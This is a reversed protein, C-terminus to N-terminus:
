YICNRLYILICTKRTDKEGKRKEGAEDARRRDKKREKKDKTEEKVKKKKVVSLRTLELADSLSGSDWIEHRLLLNM